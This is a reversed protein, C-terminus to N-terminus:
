NNYDLNGGQNGMQRQGRCGRQAGKGCGQKFGAGQGLEPAIKKVSLRLDIKKDSILKQLDAIEQSLTYLKDRDPNSTEMLMRIEQHKAFKASRFEYTEDIFKQRLTNLEDRQEKSLDNIISNNQAQGGYQPCERNFGSGKMGQGKGQGWGFSSGAVLAVLLISSIIITFQKMIVEMNFKTKIIYISRKWGPL